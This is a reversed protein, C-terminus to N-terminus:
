STLRSKLKLTITVRFLNSVILGDTKMLYFGFSFATAQIFFLTCNSVGYLIGQLHFLGLTKNFKQKQVKNFENLFHQEQGLSVVTRINEVTEVAIRGLEEEISWKSKSKSNTSARGM